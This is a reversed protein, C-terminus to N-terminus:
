LRRLSVLSGLCGLAGGSLAFAGMWSPPLFELQTGSLGGPLVQMSLVGFLLRLLALATGAGLLGVVAGELVYPVEIFARTAGILRLIRVDDTRTLMTLRISNGIIVLAAVSLIAGIAWGALRVIAVWGSLTEVWERGYQVDEVGKVRRVREALQRVAATTGYSRDLAIEISAPLPNEGLGRLLLDNGEVVKRFDEGAREKSIYSLELGPAERRLGAQVQELEAGSLGDRLYVIVRTSSQLAAMGASLNLYVLLFVGFLVMTFATTLIAVIVTAQYQRLNEVLEGCFYRLTRM